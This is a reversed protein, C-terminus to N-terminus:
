SSVDPQPTEKLWGTYSVVPGALPLTIAVHFNFRDDQVFELMKGAPALFSPMPIGLFTWGQPQYMLGDSNVVLAMAFKIPGFREFILHSFDGDGISMESSFTHGAFNRLWKEKDERRRMTVSVPINKAAPPFGMVWALLRALWSDGRTVTARGAFSKHDDIEHLARIQAPLNKWADALVQRFIPSDSSQPLDRTGTHINFQSFMTNYDDLTLAGLAPRAGSRITKNEGNFYRRIISVAALAPIFPGDDGEAILHWSRTVQQQQKDVGRVEVFMGGRHEGWSLHNMFWHMTTALRGISPLIGAKVLHSLIRLARQYIAPVTAVGFWISQPTPNLARLLQLDPVDLLSFTRPRLGVQGPPAITYRRSETFAYARCLRDDRQLHLPKGAYQAIGRIVSLGFRARPSPAIGATISAVSVLGHCLTNAVAATLVPCTSMGSLIFVGAQQAEHDLQTINQVFASGDALDIYHIKNDIAASAVRYPNAGYCQFPGSADVVIDPAHNQLQNGVNTDRDFNVALLRAGCEDSASLEAVFSEAKALNRGGVLITLEPLDALLKVIRGGFTGYGGIILLKRQRNNM